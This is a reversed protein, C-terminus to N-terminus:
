KVKSKDDSLIERGVGGIGEGGGGGEKGRGGGRRRGGLRRRM